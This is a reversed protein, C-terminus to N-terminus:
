ACWGDGLGFAGVGTEQAVVVRGPYGLLHDALGSEALPASWGSGSAPDWGQLARRGPAEASETVFVAKGGTVLLRSRIAGGLPRDWLTRGDARSLRLLRDRGPAAAAVLFLSSDDAALPGIPAAPLRVRWRQRGDYGILALTGDRGGYVLGEELPELLDGAAASGAGEASWLLRGDDASCCTIGRGATVVFGGFLAVKVAQGERGAEDVATWLPRGSLLDIATLTAKGVLFPEAFSAPRERAM